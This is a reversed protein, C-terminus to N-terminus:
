VNIATLTRAGQTREAHEAQEAREPVDTAIRGLVRRYEAGVASWVM